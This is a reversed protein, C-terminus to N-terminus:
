WWRLYMRKLQRPVKLTTLYCRKISAPEMGAITPHAKPIPKPSRIIFKLLSRNM